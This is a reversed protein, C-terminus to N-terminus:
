DGPPVAAEDDANFKVSPIEVAGFLRLRRVLFLQLHGRGGPRSGGDTTSMVVSGTHCRAPARQYEDPCDEFTVASRVPAHSARSAVFGETM